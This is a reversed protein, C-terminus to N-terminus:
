DRGVRYVGRDTGTIAAYIDGNADVVLGYAVGTGIDAVFSPEGAPSFKWINVRAGLSM